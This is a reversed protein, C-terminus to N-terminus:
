TSCIAELLAQAYTEVSRMRLYAEREVATAGRDVAALEVVAEAILLPSMRTPIGLVYSPVELEIAIDASTLTPIGYAICDLVSGSLALLSSTRLQVAVDIGAFLQELRETSVYGHWRIQPAVGVDSALEELARQEASPAGGVVHLITEVGWDRLFGLAEVVLDHAKTRADVIGFTAINLATDPLDLAARAARRAHATLVDPTPVRYPVFPIVAPAIGTEARVREALGHGHVILPAAQRVILDYGLRPLLDLDRAFDDLMAPRVPHESTSLLHATWADGRDFRYAEFMRNDHAVVPGGFWQLLDLMPLHFHSNGVVTVVADFDRGLHVVPDLPRAPFATTGPRMAPVFIEVDAHAQLAQCTFATYDAVGSRQPPYPSLVAVTPRAPTARQVATRNGGPAELLPRLAALARAEVAAPDALDGLTRRQTSAVEDANALVYAIASAFAEVDRSPALWPGNGALERHVPIDSAVVPRDRLIGEAVPISFGEAHSTVLVLATTAHLRVLEDDDVFGRIEVDGEGFGLQLAFQQLAVVQGDTLRGTVVVDLPMGSRKRHLAVAALSAPGNKRADGGVPVLVFPRTPQEPPTTPTDAHLPDAVGTTVARVDGLIDLAARRTGESICLLADYHRLSELRSRYELRAADTGLYTRPYDAPIFDFVLAATRCRPSRLFPVVPTASATMPSLTLFLSVDRDRLDHITTAVTDSLALLDKDAAPLEADTLLVIEADGAGRRLAALVSMGHRGVGRGRYDADQLCRADVVITSMRGAGHAPPVSGDVSRTRALDSVCAAEILAQREWPSHTRSALAEDTFWKTAQVGRTIAAARDGDLPARIDGFTATVRGIPSAAHDAASRAPPFHWAAGRGTAHAYAAKPSHRAIYERSLARLRRPLSAVAGLPAAVLRCARWTRSFLVTELEHRYASVEHTLADRAAEAEALRACVWRLEQEVARRREAERELQGARASALMEAAHREASVFGDLTSIPYALQEALDAQEEVIYFRNIGDFAAFRYRAELLIPEWEAHTPVTHLPAVAEVVVVIPRHRLWDSSALVDREAGEVDIKLFHMTRGEAHTELLSDLRRRPAVTGVLASIGDRDLLSTRDLSSLGPDPHSAHPSVEPGDDPGVVARINVDRPRLAALEEFAPGSAVNIGSWGHDYFLKTLSGDTPSSAGVDVYFGDGVDGFLRWLRIDEANQAYSVLAVGPEDPRSWGTPVGATAPRRREESM